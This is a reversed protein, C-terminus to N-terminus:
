QDFYDQKPKVIIQGRKLKAKSKQKLKPKPQVKHQKKGAVNDIADATKLKVKQLENKVSENM